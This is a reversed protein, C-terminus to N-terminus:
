EHYKNAPIKERRVQGGCSIQAVEEVKVKFVAVKDPLCVEFNKRKRGRSVDEVVREVSLSIQRSMFEELLANYDKGSEIIEVTGNLQYGTLSDLDIVALSVRPNIKLDNYIRGIVHDVLYIFKDDYKLVFKPAVNPRGKLDSTAVNIFEIKGLIESIGKIIM